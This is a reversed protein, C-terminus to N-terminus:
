NTSYRFLTNIIGPKQTYDSAKAVGKLKAEHNVLVGANHVHKISIGGVLQLHDLCNNQVHILCTV